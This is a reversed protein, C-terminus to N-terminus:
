YPTKAYYVTGIGTDLIDVAAGGASTAVKFTTGTRDRVYYTTIISLPDPLTDSQANAFVIKDGNKLNHSGLVDTFVNTMDDVTVERLPLALQISKRTGDIDVEFDVSTYDTIISSAGYYNFDVIKGTFVMTGYDLAVRSKFDLPHTLREALRANKWALLDQVIKELQLLEADQM